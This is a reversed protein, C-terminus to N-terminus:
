TTSCRASTAWSGNRSYGTSHDSLGRGRQDMSVDLWEPMAQAFPEFSRAEMWMAHLTVILPGDGGSDLDSLTLGDHKFAARKMTM